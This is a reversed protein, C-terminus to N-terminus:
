EDANMYFTAYEYVKPIGYRATLGLTFILLIVKQLNKFIWGTIPIITKRPYEKNVKINFNVLPAVIPNAFIFIFAGLVYRETLRLFNHQGVVMTFLIYTTICVLVKFPISFPLNTLRSFGIQFGQYIFIFAILCGIPSKYVEIFFQKINKYLNWIFTPLTVVIFKFFDFLYKILEFIQTAIDAIPKFVKNLIGMAISAIKEGINKIDNALKKIQDFAKNILAIPNLSSGAGSVTNSVTNAAGTFFSGVKGFFQEREISDKERYKRYKRYKNYRKIKKLLKDDM